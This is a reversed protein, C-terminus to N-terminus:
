SMSDNLEGYTPLRSNTCEFLRTKFSASVANEVREFAGTLLQVDRETVASRATELVEDMDFKYSDRLVTAASCLLSMGKGVCVWDEVKTALVTEFRSACFLLFYPIYNWNPSVSSVTGEEDKWKNWFIDTELVQNTLNNLLIGGQKITEEGDEARIKEDLVKLSAMLDIGYSSQLKDAQQWVISYNRRVENWNAAIVESIMAYDAKILSWMIETAEWVETAFRARVEKQREKLEKELRTAEEEDHLKKEEEAQRLLESLISKVSETDEKNFFSFVECLTEGEPNDIYIHLTNTTDDAEVIRLCDLPLIAAEEFGRLFKSRYVKLQNPEVIFLGNHKNCWQRFRVKILAQGTEITM